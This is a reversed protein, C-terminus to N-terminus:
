LSSAYRAFGHLVTRHRAAGSKAARQLDDETIQLNHKAAILQSNGIWACVVHM